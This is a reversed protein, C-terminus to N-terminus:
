NRSDGQMRMQLLHNQGSTITKASLWSHKQKRTEGRKPARRSPSKPSPKKKKAPKRPEASHLGSDSAGAGGSNLCQEAPPLQPLITSAESQFARSQVLGRLHEELIWSSARSQRPVAWK